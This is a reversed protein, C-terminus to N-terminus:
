QKGVLAALENLMRTMTAVYDLGDLELEREYRV